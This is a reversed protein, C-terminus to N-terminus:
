GGSVVSAFFGGGWGLGGVGGVTWGGRGGVLVGGTGRREGGVGWVCSWGSGGAVVGRSVGAVGGVCSAPKPARRKPDCSVSKVTGTGPWALFYAWNEGLCFRQTHQLSLGLDAMKGASFLAALREPGSFGLSRLSNKGQASDHLSAFSIFRGAMRLSESISFAALSEAQHHGRLNESPGALDCSKPM